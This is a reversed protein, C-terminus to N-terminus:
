LLECLSRPSRDLRAVNSTLWTHVASFDGFASYAVPVLLTEDVFRCVDGVVSLEDEQSDIVVFPMRGALPSCSTLPWPSHTPLSAPFTCSASSLDFNDPELM